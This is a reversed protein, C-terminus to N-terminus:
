SPQHPTSLIPLPTAAIAMLIGCLSAVVMIPLHPTMGVRSLVTLRSFSISCCSKDLLPVLVSILGGPHSCTTKRIQDVRHHIEQYSELRSVLRGCDPYTVGPSDKGMISFVPTTLKSSSPSPRSCHWACFCLARLGSGDRRRASTKEAVRNTLIAIFILNDIGARGGHCHACCASGMRPIALWHLFNTWRDFIVYQGLGFNIM